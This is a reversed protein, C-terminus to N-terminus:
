GNSRRALEELMAAKKAEIFTQYRLTPEVSGAEKFAANWDRMEGSAAMCEFADEVAAVAARARQVATIHKTIGIGLGAAMEDLKRALVEPSASQKWEYLHYSLRFHDGRLCCYSIRSPHEDVTAVDAAGIHGEEDIWIAAVGSARLYYDALDDQKRGNGM